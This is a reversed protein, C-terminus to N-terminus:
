LGVEGGFFWIEEVDAFEPTAGSSKFGSAIVVSLPISVLQVVGGLVGFDCCEEGDGNEAKPFALPPPNLDGKLIIFDGGEIREGVESVFFFFFTSLKNDVNAFFNLGVM